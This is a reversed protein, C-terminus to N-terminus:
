SDGGFLDRTYVKAQVDRIEDTVRNAVIVDCDRKFAALDREV